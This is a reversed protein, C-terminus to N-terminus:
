NSSGLSNLPISQEPARRRQNRVSSLIRGPVIRDVLHSLGLGLIIATYIMSVLLHFAVLVRTSPSTPFIDGFGCGTQASLAFYGFHFVLQGINSGAELDTAVLHFSRPGEIVYVTFYMGAFLLATSLYSQFLFEPTVDEANIKRVLVFSTVIVVILNIIQLLLICLATLVLKASPKAIDHFDLRSVLVIVLCLVLTSCTILLPVRRLWTGWTRYHPIYSEMGESIREAISDFDIHSASMNHSRRHNADAQVAQAHLEKKIRIYTTGVAFIAVSYVVSSLMQLSTLVQSVFQRPVIDGFGSTSQTTFSFYWLIMWIDIPSRQSPGLDLRFSDEDVLYCALYLGAFSITTAVYLRILTTISVFSTQISKAASLNALVNTVALIIEMIWCTAEVGANRPRDDTFADPNVNAICALMLLQWSVTIKLLHRFVANEVRALCTPRAPPVVHDVAIRPGDLPSLRVIELDADEDDYAPGDTGSSGWGSKNPKDVLPSTNSAQDPNSMPPVARGGTPAGDSDYDDDAQSRVTGMAIKRSDDLVLRGPGGARVPSPPCGGNAIPDRGRGGGVTAVVAVARGHRVRDRSATRGRSDGGEDGRSSWTTCPTDPAKSRPGCVHGLSHIFNMSKDLRDM